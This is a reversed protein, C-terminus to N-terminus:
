ELVGLKEADQAWALICIADAQDPEVHSDAHGMAAVLQTAKEMVLRKTEKRRASTPIKTGRGAARIGHHRQWTQPSVEVVLIGLQEAHVVWCYYAHIIAHAHMWLQSEIVLTTPGLEVLVNRVIKSTPNFLVGSETETAWGSRHSGPDIALITM